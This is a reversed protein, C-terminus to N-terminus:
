RASFLLLESQRAELTLTSLKGAEQKSAGNNCYSASVYSGRQQSHQWQFYTGSLYAANQDCHSGVRFRRCIADQTTSSASIAAFGAPQGNLCVLPLEDVRGLIVVYDCLRM